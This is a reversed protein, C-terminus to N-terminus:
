DAETQRDEFYLESAPINRNVLPDIAFHRLRANPPIRFLELISGTKHRDNSIIGSGYEFCEILVPSIAPRSGGQSIFKISASLEKPDIFVEHTVFKREGPFITHPLPLDDVYPPSPKLERIRDCIARQDSLLRYYNPYEDPLFSLQYGMDVAPMHGVNEFTLGIKMYCGESPLDCIFSGEVSTKVSWPRESIELQRQMIRAQGQAAASETHERIAEVHKDLSTKLSDLSKLIAKLFRGSPDVM